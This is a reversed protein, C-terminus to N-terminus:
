SILVMENAILDLEKIEKAMDGMIKYTEQTGKKYVNGYEWFRFLTLSLVNSIIRAAHAVDFRDDNRVNLNLRAQRTSLGTWDFHAFHSTDAYTSLSGLQAKYEPKTTALSRIMAQYTWRGKIESIDKKTYKSQIDKLLEDSLISAKLPIKSHDISFEEFVALTEVAKKHDAVMELECLVYRYELYKQWREEATGNLLFCYKVTGEMVSRLLIDADALAMTDSLLTLITSSTSHLMSFLPVTVEQEQGGNEQYLPSLSCVLANTLSFATDIRSRIFDSYLM